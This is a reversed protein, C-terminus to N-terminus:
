HEDEDAIARISERSRHVPHVKFSISSCYRLNVQVDLVTCCNVIGFLLWLPGLQQVTVWRPAVEVAEDAGGRGRRRAKRRALGRAHTGVAKSKSHPGGAGSASGMAIQGQEYGYNRSKTYLNATIELLIAIPCLV